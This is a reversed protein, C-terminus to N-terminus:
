HRVLTIGYVCWKDISNKNLVAYNKLKMIIRPLLTKVPLVRSILSRHIYRARLTLEKPHNSMRLVDQPHIQVDREIRIFYRDCENLFAYFSQPDFASSSSDLSLDLTIVLIGGPKLVRHFEKLSADWNEIHELVSLCTVVDYINNGIQDMLRCDYTEYRIDTIGPPPDAAKQIRIFNQRMKPDVDSAVVEYGRSALFLPFFTLASGIDLVKPRVCSLVPMYKRIQFWMYPYEWIRTFNHMPDIPWGYSPPFLDNYLMFDIYQNSYYELEKYSEKWESTLFDSICGLRNGSYNHLSMM